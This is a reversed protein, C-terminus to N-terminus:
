PLTMNTLRSTFSTHSPSRRVGADVNPEQLNSVAEGLLIAGFFRKSDMSENFVEPKRHSLAFSMLWLSRELAGLMKLECISPSKWGEAWFKTRRKASLFCVSRSKFPMPKSRFSCFCRYSCERGGVNMHLCNVLMCVTKVNDVDEVDAVKDLRVSEACGACQAGRHSRSLIGRM